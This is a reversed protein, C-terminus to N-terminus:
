HHAYYVVAPDQCVVLFVYIYEEVIASTHLLLATPSLECVCLLLRSDSCSAPVLVTLIRLVGVNGVHDRWKVWVVSIKWQSHNVGGCHKNEMLWPKCERMAQKRTIVKSIKDVAPYIHWNCGSPQDCTLAIYKLSVGKQLEQTYPIGKMAIEVM